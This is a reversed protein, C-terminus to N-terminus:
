LALRVGSCQCSKLERSWRTKVHQDPVVSFSLTILAKSSKFEFGGLPPNRYRQTVSAREGARKAPADLRPKAIEVIKAQAKEYEALLKQRDRHEQLGQQQLQKAKDQGRFAGDIRAILENADSM